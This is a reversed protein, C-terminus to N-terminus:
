GNPVELIIDGSRSLIATKITVSQEQSSNKLNYFIQITLYSDSGVVGVVSILSLQQLWKGFTIQVSQRILAIADNINEFLSAGVTGGFNPRMVRDGLNTMVALLVRDQWIKELSETYGIGGSNDISFPMTIARENMKISGDM